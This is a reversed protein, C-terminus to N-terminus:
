TPNSKIKTLKLENEILSFHTKNKKEFIVTVNLVCVFTQMLEHLIKTTKKM